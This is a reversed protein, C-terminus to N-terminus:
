ASGFVENRLPWGKTEGRYLESLEIEVREIYGDIQVVRANWMEVERALEPLWGVKACRTQVAAAWRLANVRRDILENLRKEMHRIMEVRSPLREPSEFFGKLSHTNRAEKLMKKM